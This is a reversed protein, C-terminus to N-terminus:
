HPAGCRVKYVLQSYFDSVGDLSANGFSGRLLSDRGISSSGYPPFLSLDVGLIPEMLPLVSLQPSSRYFTLLYVANISVPADSLLRPEVQSLQTMLSDSSSSKEEDDEKRRRKSKSPARDKDPLSLRKTRKIKKPGDGLPVQLICFVEAGCLM